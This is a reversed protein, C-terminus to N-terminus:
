KDNLVELIVKPFTNIKYGIKPLIENKILKADYGNDMLSKITLLIEDKSIENSNELGLFVKDEHTQRITNIQANIMKLLFNLKAQASQSLEKKLEQLIPFENNIEVLMGKNSACRSFLSFKKEKKTPFRKINRNYFEKTAEDKLDNIYNEFADKLDHPIIVQSKSVNLHLLHDVSNGIEVRLRALQLRPAKKVIGNWGGFSIIRNARYIYIGEMDTLSRYRTTWHTINKKSEEISRSPLVFGELKISDTGFKKQKFEVSRLDKEQTPFPNFPKLRVNNVRINLPKNKKEMFRHFVLSLHDVTVETIERKLATKRNKEELYDEYKYLGSWIVITNADYNDFSNLHEKSQENYENVLNEIEEQTNVIIQWKNNKLISLDWTRGNYESKNEERSLVTFRRTQSFSATKMGLGFRGLDYNNRIEDPSNSPFHMNAKLESESMGDGNDALFLTFPDGDMKILVEIKDANASISNDMLDALASELSYGQEAISKILYEPNPTVDEYQKM